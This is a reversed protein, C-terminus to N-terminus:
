RDAGIKWGTDAARKPRRGHLEPFHVKWQKGTTLCTAQTNWVGDPNDASVGPTPSCYHCCCLDDTGHGFEQKPLPDFGVNGHVRKYKKM